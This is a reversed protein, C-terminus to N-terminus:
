QPCSDSTTCVGSYLGLVKQPLAAKPKEEKEKKKTKEEKKTTDEKEKEEDEKEGEWRNDHM